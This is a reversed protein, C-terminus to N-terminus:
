PAASETAQVNRVEEQLWTSPPLGAFERFDRDLHPQDAYGCKAAATAISSTCAAITNQARHFRIVRAALKPSLGIEETFRRALQRQTWGVERAVTAVPIRGGTALLLRWAERVPRPPVPRGATRKGLVHDLIAFREAWSPAEAVRAQLEGAVRGLVDEAAFDAGALEGAPVGFLARSALPSVRLQIGSQAGDHGVLAPRSHLGGVFVDYAAGPRGDVQEVIRLPEYLTVIFTMFPSPLGRHLAPEVGRQRFGSYETILGGLALSPRGRASEDIVV